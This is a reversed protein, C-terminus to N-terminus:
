SRVEVTRQEGHHAGSCFGWHKGHSVPGLVGLGHDGAGRCKDCLTVTLHNLYALQYTVVFTKKM